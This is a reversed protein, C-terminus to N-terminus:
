SNLREAVIRILTSLDMTALMRALSELRKNELDPSQSGLRSASPNRPAKHMVVVRNCTM